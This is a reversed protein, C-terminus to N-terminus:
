RSVQRSHAVGSAGTLPQACQVCSWPMFSSGAKTAPMTGRGSRVRLDPRAPITRTSSILHVRHIKGDDVRRLLGADGQGRERSLLHELQQLLTRRGLVAQAHANAAAATRAVRVEHLEAFAVLGA